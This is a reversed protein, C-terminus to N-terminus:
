RRARPLAAGLLREICSGERLLHSLPQADLLSAHLGIFKLVPSRHLLGDVWATDCRYLWRACHKGAVTSTTWSLSPDDVDELDLIWGLAADDARLLLTDERWLRRAEPDRDILWKFCSHM